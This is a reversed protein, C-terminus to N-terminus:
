THEKIYNRLQQVWLQTDHERLLYFGGAHLAFSANAGSWDEISKTNLPKNGTIIEGSVRLVRTHRLTEGCIMGIGAVNTRVHNPICVVVDGVHLNKKL